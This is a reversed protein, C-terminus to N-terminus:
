IKDDLTVKYVPKSRSSDKPTYDEVYDEVREPTVKLVSFRTRFVADKETVDEFIDCLETVPLSAYDGTTQTALVPETLIVKKILEKDVKEPNASIEKTLSKALKSFPVFTM